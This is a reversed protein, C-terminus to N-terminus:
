LMQSQSWTIISRSNKIKTETIWKQFHFKVHFRNLYSFNFFFFLQLGFSCNSLYNARHFTSISLFFKALKNWLSGYENCRRKCKLDYKMLNYFVGDYFVIKNWTLVAAWHLLLYCCFFVCVCVEQTRRVSNFTPPNTLLHVSLFICHIENTTLSNFVQYKTSMDFTETYNKYSNNDKAMANCHKGGSESLQSVTTTTTTTTQSTSSLKM